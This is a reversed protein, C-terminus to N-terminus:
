GLSFIGHRMLGVSEPLAKDFSDFFEGSHLGDGHSRAQRQCFPPRESGYLDGIARRLAQWDGVVRLGTTQRRRRAASEAGARDVARDARVVKSRHADRQPAATLKGFLIDFLLRHYHDDALRHRATVPRALVGDALLDVRAERIRTPEGHHADHAVDAMEPQFGFGPRLHVEWIQLN